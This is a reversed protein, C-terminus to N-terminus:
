CGTAYKKRGDAGMSSGGGGESWGGGSIHQSLYLVPVSSVEGPRTAPMVGEAPASSAPRMVGITNTIKINMFATFFYFFVNSHMM